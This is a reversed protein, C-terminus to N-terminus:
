IVYFSNIVIFDGVDFGLFNNSIYFGRVLFPGFVSAPTLITFPVTTVGRIHESARVIGTTIGTPKFFPDYKPDTMDLFLILATNMNPGNVYCADLSIFVASGIRQILIPTTTAWAGGPSLEAETPSVSLKEDTDIRGGLVIGTAELNNTICTAGTVDLTSNVCTNGQIDITSVNINLGGVASNAPNTLELQSTGSNICLTPTFDPTSPANWMIDGDDLTVSLNNKVAIGTACDLQVTPTGTDLLDVKGPTMISETATPVSVSFSTALIKALDNTVTDTIELFQNNISTQEDSGVATIQIENTSGIIQVTNTGVIIDGTVKLNGDITICEDIFPEITDM